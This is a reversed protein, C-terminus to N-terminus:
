EKEMVFMSSLGLENGTLQEVMTGGGAACIAKVTSNGDKHNKPGLTICYLRLRDEMESKLKKVREVAGNDNSNGDTCFIVVTDEDKDILTSADYFAEGFNERSSLMSVFKYKLLYKRVFDNTAKVRKAAYATPNRPTLVASVTDCNGTHISLFLFSVIHIYIISYSLNDLATICDIFNFIIVKETHAAYICVKAREVCFSNTFRHICLM